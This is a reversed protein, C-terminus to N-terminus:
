RSAKRTGNIAIGLSRWRRRAQKETSHFGGFGGEFGGLVGTVNPKASMTKREEEVLWLLLPMM